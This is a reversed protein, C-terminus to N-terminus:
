MGHSLPMRDVAPNFSWQKKEQEVNLLDGSAHAVRLRAGAGLADSAPQNCGCALHVRPIIQPPITM